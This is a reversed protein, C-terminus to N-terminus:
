AAGVRLVLKGRTACSELGRHARAADALEVVDTVDIRVQQGAVLEVASRIARGVLGPATRSLGGMSFGLVARNHARLEGGDPLTEPDGSANGFAVLRGLPALAALGALRAPGGVSDFVVDTGRGGTHAAVADGFRGRLVVDDFGFGRAYDVKAQSGVTGLVAGAGRLAALQGLATGVGGAAAHVVVTQGSRLRAVEDVLLVATPVVTALAGAVEPDVASPPLPVTLEAAALAVEAYGGSGTFAVVREGLQLGAVGDGLADVVGTVELGPVFPPASARHYDGRRAMVEAFNVGAHSVRIAVQGPGPCPVPLDVLELVEPPGYRAVQMARMSPGRGTPTEPM